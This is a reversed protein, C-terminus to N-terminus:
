IQSSRRCKILGYLCALGGLLMWSTSPEPVPVAYITGSYSTSEITTALESLPVAPDFQFTVTDSAQGAAALASLDSSSGSYTIGTLNITGTLDLIGSDFFTTINDWQITGTLNLSSPDTIYLTGSGTVNATQEFGNTTISGIMFPGSTSIYGDDTISDGAGGSVTTIDFQYGNTSSFNFGGTGNFNVATNALNAFNLTIAQTSAVSVALSLLFIVVIKKHNKVSKLSNLVARVSHFM